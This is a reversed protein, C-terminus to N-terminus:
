PLKDFFFSQGNRPNNNGPPVVLFGNTEHLSSIMHSSQHQLVSIRGNSDMKSKLFVTKSTDHKITGEVNGKQRHLLPDPFGMLNRIAPLAYEYFCMFASAPNGPLGFILKAGHKGFYLPKGPTQSIKWFLTKVGLKQLVTKSFDYDGVSVGGSLLIVDSKQLSRVLAHRLAGPEDCLTQVMVPRIGNSILASALMPSNSDYIKGPSLRKGPAMLESGTTLVTVKPKAFIRVKTTGIQALFAITGSHVPTNRWDLSTGKKIEEGRRRIHRGTIVPESIKLSQNEVIAMEKPLVTNAGGPIPAGTMIKVAEGSKMKQAPDGAKLVGVIRLFVPSRNQAKKTDESKLAFGDMASNDWHPLPVPVRIKEALICGLSDMLPLLETRKKRSHKLIIRQAQECSIM